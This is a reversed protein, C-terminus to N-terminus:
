KKIGHSETPYYKDNKRALILRFHLIYIRNLVLVIYAKVLLM